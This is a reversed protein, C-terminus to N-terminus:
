CQQALNRAGCRLRGDPRAPCARAVAVRRLIDRQPVERQLRARKGLTKPAASAYIDHV